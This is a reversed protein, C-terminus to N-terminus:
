THTMFKMDVQPGNSSWKNKVENMNRGFFHSCISLLTTEHRGAQLLRLM